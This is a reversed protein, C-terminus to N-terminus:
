AIPQNGNLVYHDHLRAIKEVTGKMESSGFEGVLACTAYSGTASEYTREWNRAAQEEDSNAFPFRVPPWPVNCRWPKPTLRARYCDQTKCLSVYLQDAGLHALLEQSRPEGAPILESTLLVRYGNFTRYLRLGLAPDRACASEMRAILGQEFSDPSKRAFGFLHLLSQVPNESNADPRDVDAFFVNPTNLVLCGYSNRSIVAITEEGEEFEEVIEERFPREGQYYNDVPPSGLALAQATKAAREKAIRLAHELSVNSYGLCSVDFDGRPGSAQQEARAWIRYFQM